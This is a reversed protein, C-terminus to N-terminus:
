VMIWLRLQIQLLYITPVRIIAVILSLVFAAFTILIVTAFSPSVMNEMYANDVIRIDGITSAELISFGLRRTELEELLNQSIELQSFLDIYDQQEKPMVKIESLISDKQSMLIKKKNILNIYIPNNETYIKSANALEVETVYIDEDISKIKDIVVQTELEFNISKNVERFNKLKDKNQDVVKQLLILNEDIFKIAARSKETEAFVRQDLFIKNAYDIIKKGRDIDDTIFSIEILGEDRIFNNASRADLNIASKYVPFLTVPNVYTVKLLRKNILDIKSISFSFDDFVNIAQDYNAEILLDKGKDSYVKIINDKDPYIYFTKTYPIDSFNQFFDIDVSEEYGIDEIEVNLNLDDIMQLLNTRSKYLLILNDLDASSRSGSMMQLTDTPDLSGQNFSEVQLLSSIKYLKTSALYWVISLTLAVFTIFFIMKSQMLIYRFLNAIDISENDNQQFTNFNQEPM